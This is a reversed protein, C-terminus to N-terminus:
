RNGRVRSTVQKPPSDGRRELSPPAGRPVPPWQLHGIEALAQVHPRPAPEGVLHYRLWGLSASLCNLLYYLLNFPLVGVTFALGRVRAFFRYLPWNTAVVPVLLAGGVAALWGLRFVGAVLLLVAAGGVLATNIKEIPRLNLTSTGRSAGRRLLLMTWPVGRDTLDTRVVDRFRWRKLHTCQIEPRLVVRYGADNLRHGLEIDEIQPRSFHWENYMGVDLFASRRIAGCGAWFTEADGAHRQHHYHHLLNRYESVFGGATPHEDYSGFAADVTPNTAFLWAFRRLASPHVCVDADIFVLVEGRAVEAGRNRAFSPGHPQWQLRVIRDAFSAAVEATQDTSSDDVVILEWLSRPLDSAALAGLAEPLVKVGNFAPVIVSLFPREM